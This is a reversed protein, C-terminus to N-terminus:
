LVAPPSTPHPQPPGQPGITCHPWSAAHLEEKKAEAKFFLPNESLNHHVQLCRALVRQRFCLDLSQRGQSIKGSSYINKFVRPLVLTVAIVSATEQQNKKPQNKKKNNNASLPTRGKIQQQGGQSDTDCQVSDKREPKQSFGWSGNRVKVPILHTRM